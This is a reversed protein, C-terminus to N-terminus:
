QEVQGPLQVSERAEEQYWRVRSTLVPCRTACVYRTGYAIDTGSVAYCMRLCGGGYATGTGSM